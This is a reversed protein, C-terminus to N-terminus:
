SLCLFKLFLKLDKFSFEIYLLFSNPSFSITMADQNILLKKGINKRKEEFKKACSLVIALFPNSQNSFLCVEESLLLNIPPKLDYLSKCHGEKSNERVKKEKNLKKSTGENKGLVGKKKQVRLM